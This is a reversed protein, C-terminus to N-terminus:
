LPKWHLSIFHSVRPVYEHRVCESSWPGVSFGELTGVATLELSVWCPSRSPSAATRGDAPTHCDRPRDAEPVGDPSLLSPHM